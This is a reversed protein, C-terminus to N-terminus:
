TVPTWVAGLLLALTVGLILTNLALEPTRARSVAVAKPAIGPEAIFARYAV